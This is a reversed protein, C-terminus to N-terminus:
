NNPGPKTQTSGIIQLIMSQIHRTNHFINPHHDGGNVSCLYCRSQEIDAEKGSQNCSNKSAGKGSKGNVPPSCRLQKMFQLHSLTSCLAHPAIYLITCSQSLEKICGAKM